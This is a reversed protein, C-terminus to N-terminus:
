GSTNLGGPVGGITGQKKSISGYMSQSKMM